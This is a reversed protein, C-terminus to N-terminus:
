GPAFRSVAFRQALPHPRAAVLAALLEAAALGVSMGQGGLGAFWFLGRVLPDPGILMSRDSTRTRLCAWSRKLEAQALLPAASPLAALLQAVAAPDVSPPVAPHPADDGPCALVLNGSPRFYVGTEIDWCVPHAPDVEFSPTLEVLHRRYCALPLDRACHLGLDRAWAGAAIVVSSAEHRAGSSLQVARIQQGQLEIAAEQGTVIEVGLQQAHGSLLEALKKLDMVGGDELFLGHRARGGDLWPARSCLAPGSLEQYRVNNAQATALLSALAGREAAVLCLGSPQLLSASYELLLERNRAALQVLAPDTELPRFIAANRSSSHQFLQPEREILIVRQAPRSTPERQAALQIAAALGAIGGGLILLSM